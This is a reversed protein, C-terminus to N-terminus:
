FCINYLSFFYLYPANFLTLIIAALLKRRKELIYKKLSFFYSFFFILLTSILFASVVFFCSMVSVTYVFNSATVELPALAFCFPFLICPMEDYIITWVIGIVIQTILYACFIFLYEKFYLWVKIKNDTNKFVTHKILVFAPIELILPLLFIAFYYIFSYIFWTHVQQEIM